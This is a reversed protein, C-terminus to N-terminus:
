LIRERADHMLTLTLDRQYMHSNGVGLNPLLPKLAQSYPSSTGLFETLDSRVQFYRGLSSGSPTVGFLKLGRSDPRSQPTRICGLAQRLDRIRAAEQDPRGHINSHHVRQPAGRADNRDTQIVDRSGAATPLM